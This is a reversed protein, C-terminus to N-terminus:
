HNTFNVLAKRLHRPRRFASTTIIVQPSELLQLFAASGQRGYTKGNEVVAANGAIQHRQPLGRQSRGFSHTGPALAVSAGEESPTQPHTSFAFGFDYRCTLASVVELGRRICRFGAVGDRYDQVGDAAEEGCIRERCLHVRGRLAQRDARESQRCHVFDAEEMTLLTSMVALRLESHLLPDLKAFEGM